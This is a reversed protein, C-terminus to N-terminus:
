VAVRGQYGPASVAFAPYTVIRYEYDNTTSKRLMTLGDGNLVKPFGDAHKLEIYDMNVAFASTLPCFRDAWVDVLKGGAAIQIKQYNFKGIMGDLPRQGKSELSDALAQWKEPNMFVDTPGPGMGRGTMRTVLKKVRQEIGLGSIEAATLRVGSLATMFLTRDLNEFTTSSPDAAPVWASLGLIIRTAGSGGFDGQRFGYMTGTWGTPVGASGGSTASVTFTGANANVAIVFGSSGSGLLTHGSSTGDNASANMIMGVNVNVIDDPQLLTCVGASITFTGPTVAHGSDGIAYYAMIDAFQEYLRDIEAKKNEFFAGINDRSLSIVKDGISIAGDYDGVQIQWQKGQLNGGGGAQDSATQANTLTGSFGQPNAVIVPLCWPNGSLTTKKVKSLFPRDKNTIATVQGPNYYRKIFADFTTLSSAM